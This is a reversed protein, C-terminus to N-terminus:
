GSFIEPTERSELNLMVAQNQAVPSQHLWSGERWVRRGEPCLMM